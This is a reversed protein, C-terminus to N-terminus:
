WGRAGGRGWRPCRGARTSGCWRPGGGRGRAGCPRGHPRCPPTSRTAGERAPTARPGRRGPRRAAEGAGPHSSRCSRSRPPPEGRPSGRTCPWRRRWRRWPGDHISEVVGPPAHGFVDRHHPDVVGQRRDQGVVADRRLAEVVAGHAAPGELVGHGLRCRLAVRRGVAEHRAGEDLPLADRRRRALTRATGGGPCMRGVCPLPQRSDGM